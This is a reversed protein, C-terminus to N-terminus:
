SAEHWNSPHIAFHILASEAQYVLETGAPLWICDRPQLELEDFREIRVPSKDTSMVNVPQM